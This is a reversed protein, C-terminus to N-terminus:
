RNVAAVPKSPLKGSDAIMSGVVGSQVLRCWEQMAEHIKSGREITTYGETINVAGQALYHTIQEMNM